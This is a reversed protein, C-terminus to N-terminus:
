AAVGEPQDWAVSALAAAHHARIPVGPLALRQAGMTAMTLADYENDNACQCQEGWLRAIGVAVAPKDANGKNTAFKKVVNPPAIAVRHQDLMLMDIVAWWLGARDWTSANNKSFAPAEVVVLDAGSAFQSVALVIGYLRDRRQRLTDDRSGKSTITAVTLDVGGPVTTIAALGTGTLSLDIGVARTM